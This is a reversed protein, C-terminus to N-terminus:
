TTSRSTGALRLPWLSCSALELASSVFSGFRSADLCFDELCGEGAAELDLPSPNLCDSLSGDVLFSTALPREGELVFDRPISWASPSTLLDCPEM